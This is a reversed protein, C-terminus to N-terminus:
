GCNVLTVTANCSSLQLCHPHLGQCKPKDIGIYGLKHEIGVPFINLDIFTQSKTHNGIPNQIQKDYECFGTISVPDMNPHRQGGRPWGLDLGVGFISKRGRRESTWGERPLQAPPLTTTREPSPKCPSSTPSERPSRFERTTVPFTQFWPIKHSEWFFPFTMVGVSSSM